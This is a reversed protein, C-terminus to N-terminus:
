VERTGRAPEKLREFVFFGRKLQKVIQHSVLSWSGIRVTRIINNCFGKGIKFACIRVWCDCFRFNLLCVFIDMVSFVFLLVVKFVTSLKFLSNSVNLVVLSSRARV